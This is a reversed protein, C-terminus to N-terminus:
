GSQKANTKNLRKSIYYDLANRIFDSRSGINNAKIAEDMRKVVSDKLRVSLVKKMPM